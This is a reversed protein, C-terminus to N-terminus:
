FYLGALHRLPYPVQWWTQGGLLGMDKWAVSFSQSPTGLKKIFLGRCCVGGRSEARPESNGKNTKNKKQFGTNTESFRPWGNVWRRGGKWWGGWLSWSHCSEYHSFSLCCLETAMPPLNLSYYKMRVM